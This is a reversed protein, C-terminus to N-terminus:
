STGDYAAIFDGPEVGFYEVSDAPIYPSAATAAASAATADAGMGLHAKADSVVRIFRTDTSFASSAAATTFTVAQVTNVDEWFGVPTSDGSDDDRMKKFETIFMVAM